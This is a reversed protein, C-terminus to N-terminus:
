RLRTEFRRYQAPNRAQVQRVLEDICEHRVCYAVLEQIKAQKGMDAGWAEYVPRFHDFCLVTLEHDDLAASLLERVAQTNWEGPRQEQHVRRTRDGIAAGTTPDTSGGREPDAPPSIFHAAIEVLHAPLADSAILRYEDLYGQILKWQEDITRRARLKEEPRDSTQRIREYERIMDYSEVIAQELDTKRSM